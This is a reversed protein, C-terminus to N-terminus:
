PLKSNHAAKSGLPLISQLIIGIAAALGAAIQELHSGELLYDRVTLLRSPSFDTVKTSPVYSLVLSLVGPHHPAPTRKRETRRANLRRERNNLLPTIESKQM